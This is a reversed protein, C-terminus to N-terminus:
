YLQRIYFIICLFSLSFFWEFFKAFCVLFVDCSSCTIAGNCDSKLHWHIKRDFSTSRVGYKFYATVVAVAIFVWKLCLQYISFMYRWVWVTVYRTSDNDCDAWYQLEDTHTPWYFVFVDYRLDTSRQFILYLVCQLTLTCCAYPYNFGKLQWLM